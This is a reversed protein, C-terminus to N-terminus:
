TKTNRAPCPVRLRERLSSLGRHYLRHVSSVSSGTLKAVEELSLGGWLRAVIVERQDLPLEALARTAVIADLSVATM